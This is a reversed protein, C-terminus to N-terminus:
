FFRHIAIVPRVLINTVFLLLEILLFEAHGSRM